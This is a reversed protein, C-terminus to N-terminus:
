KILQFAEVSGQKLIDPWSYLFRGLANFRSSASFLFHEKSTFFLPPSPYFFSTVGNPIESFHKETSCVSKESINIVKGRELVCEARSPLLGPLLGSVSNGNVLSNIIKKKKKGCGKSKAPSISWPEAKLSCAGLLIGAILDLMDWLIKRLFKKRVNCIWM